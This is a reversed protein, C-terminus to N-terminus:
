LERREEPCSKLNQLTEKKFKIKSRAMTDEHKAVMQIMERYYPDAATFFEDVHSLLIQQQILHNQLKLRNVWDRSQVQTIELTMSTGMYSTLGLYLYKDKFAVEKKSSTILLHSLGSKKAKNEADDNKANTKGIKDANLYFAKKNLVKIECNASTPCHVVTSMYMEFGQSSQVAFKLPSPRNFM